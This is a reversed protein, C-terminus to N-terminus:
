FLSKLGDPAKNQVFDEVFQDWRDRIPLKMDRSDLANGQSQASIRMFRLKGTLQDLGIMRTELMKIGNESALYRGWYDNFVDEDEIPM